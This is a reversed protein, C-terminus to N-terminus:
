RGPCRTTTCPAGGAPACSLLAECVRGGASALFFLGAAGAGTASAGAGRASLPAAEGFLQVSWDGSPSASAGRSSLALFSHSVTAILNEYFRFWYVSAAAPDLDSPGSADVGSPTNHKYDPGCM